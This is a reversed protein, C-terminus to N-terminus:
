GKIKRGEGQIRTPPKSIPELTLRDTGKPHEIDVDTAALRLRDRLAYFYQPETKEGETVILFSQGSSLSPKTRAGPRSM